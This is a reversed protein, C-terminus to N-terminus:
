QINGEGDTKLILVDKAYMGRSGVLVFGGDSTTKIDHLIDHAATVFTRTWLTDLDENLKVMYFNLSPSSGTRGGIIINGDATIDSAVCNDYDATGFNAHDVYNLQRDTKVVYCDSMGLPTFSASLGSIVYYGNHEVITKGIDDDTGGFNQAKIFSGDSSAKVVYFEDQVPGFGSSVGAMVINGDSDKIADNCEDISTGGYYEVMNIKGTTWINALYFDDSSNSDSYSRGAILYEGPNVEIAARAQSAGDFTFSSGSLSDGENDVKLLYSDTGDTGSIFLDGESNADIFYGISTSNHFTKQTIVNGLNNFIGLYLSASVANLSNGTIYYKNATEAISYGIDNGLFDYSKEWAQQTSQVLADSIDSSDIISFSGSYDYYGRTYYTYSTGKALDSDLWRFTGTITDVPEQAPGKYIIYHTAFPIPNIDLRISYLATSDATLLPKLASIDPAYFVRFTLDAQVNNLDTVSVSVTNWSLANLDAALSWSTTGTVTVESGNVYGTISSITTDDSATGAVAMPTSKVVISDRTLSHSTLEITPHVNKVYQVTTIGSPHTRYDGFARARVNISSSVPVPGVYLESTETPASGDLTYRIEIGAPAVTVSLELNFPTEFRGSPHSFSVDPITTKLAYVAKLTADSQTLSVTTSASTSDAISAHGTAVTWHSFYYDSGPTATVPAQDGYDFTGDGEQSGGGDTALTLAFRKISYNAQISVSGGTVTVTTNERNALDFEATGSGSVQEWSVFNYAVDTNAEIGHSNGCYAFGSDIVPSGGAAPSAQMSVSFKKKDFVANVNIDQTITLTIEENDFDADGVRFHSFDHCSSGVATLSVNDQFSYFNYNPDVEVSNGDTVDLYLVFKDYYSFTARVTSDGKLVVMLTDGTDEGDNWSSFKFGPLATATIRATDGYQYFDRLDIIEATGFASDNIEVSLVYESLVFVADVNIDDNVELVLVSDTYENDGIVWKELEYGPLPVPIIRVTDGFAYTEPSIEVDNGANSIVNVRYVDKPIFVATLELDERVSIGFSLTDLFENLEDPSGELIEWRSFKYGFEPICTFVISDMYNFTMTLSERSELTGYTVDRLEIKGTGPNASKLTVTYALRSIKVTIFHEKSISNFTVEGAEAADESVIGDILVTDIKFGYDAKITFTQEKGSEVMVVGRLGFPTVSGGENVTISVAFATDVVKIVATNSKLMGSVASNFITVFYSGEDAESIDNFKLYSRTEDKLESGNRYWQYQPNTGDATVFISADSGMIFTYSSELNTIYKVPVANEVYTITFPNSFTKDTTDTMNVLLLRYIGGDAEQFSDFILNTDKLYLSDNKFWIFEVFNDIEYSPTIKLEAGRVSAYDPISDIVPDKAEVLDYVTEYPFYEGPRAYDVNKTRAHIVKGDYMFLTIVAFDDNISKPLRVENKIDDGSRWEYILLTDRSGEEVAYYFISDYLSADEETFDIALYNITEKKRNFIDCNMLSILFLVSLLYKIIRM